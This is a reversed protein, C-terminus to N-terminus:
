WLHRIAHWDIHFEPPFDTHVKPHARRMHVRYIRTSAVSLWLIILLFICAMLPVVRGQVFNMILGMMFIDIIQLYSFVM